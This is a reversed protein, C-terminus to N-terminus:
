IRPLRPQWWCPSLLEWGWFQPGLLAWCSSVWWVVPSCICLGPSFGWLSSGIPGWGCLWAWGFPSRPPSFYVLYRRWPAPLGLSPLLFRALGWRVGEPSRFPMRYFRISTERWPALWALIWRCRPASSRSGRGTSLRGWRSWHLQRVLSEVLRILLVLTGGWGMGRWERWRHAPSCTPPGWDHPPLGKGVWLRTSWLDFMRPHCRRTSVLSGSCDLCPM